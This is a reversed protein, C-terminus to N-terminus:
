SDTVTDRYLDRLLSVEAAHHLFERNIHLVLMLFPGQSFPGEAPGCARFLGPDGLAEVGDHWRTYEATVIAMADVANGTWPMADPTVAGDGFHNSSREGFVATAIHALRWAITTFPPPDPERETLDQRWDGDDGPRVSWCNPVPEWLYEEDGLGELRPLFQHDWAFTLQDLLAANWSFTM